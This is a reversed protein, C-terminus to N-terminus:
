FLTPKYKIVHVSYKAFSKWFYNKYYFKELTDEFAGALKSANM